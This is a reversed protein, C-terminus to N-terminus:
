QQYQPRPETAASTEEAGLPPGGNKPDLTSNSRSTNYSSTDRHQERADRDFFRDRFGRGSDRDRYNRYANDDQCDLRVGAVNQHRPESATSLEDAGLPPGGNCRELQSGDAFAPSAAVSLTSVAFLAAITSKRM